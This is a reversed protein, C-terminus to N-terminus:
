DPRAAFREDTAGADDPAGADVTGADDVGIAGDGRPLALDAGAGIDTATNGCGAFLLAAVGSALLVAARKM